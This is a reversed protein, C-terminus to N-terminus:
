NKPCIKPDKGAAELYAIIDARDKADGFGAFGMATGPLVSLPATLFKDLTAADWTFGSDKMVETYEFGPVTGAKRGFVGCHHPGIVNDTMSHCGSCEHWLEEGKHADGAAFSSGSVMMLGVAFSGAALRGLLFKTM